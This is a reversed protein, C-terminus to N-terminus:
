EDCSCANAGTSASEFRRFSSCYKSRQIAIIILPLNFYDNIETISLDMFSVANTNVALPLQMSVTGESQQKQLKASWCEDLLSLVSPIHDDELYVSHFTSIMEPKIKAVSQIVEVMVHPQGFTICTM